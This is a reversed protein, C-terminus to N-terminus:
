VESRSGFMIGRILEVGNAFPVARRSFQSVLARFVFILDLSSLSEVVVFSYNISCGFVEILM